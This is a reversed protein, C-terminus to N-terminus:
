SRAGEATLFIGVDLESMELPPGPELDLSALAPVIRENFFRTAHQKSEWIDISTTGSTSPGSAHVLLGDVPTEGVAEDIRLHTDWDADWVMFTAYTM